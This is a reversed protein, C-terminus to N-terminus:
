SPSSLSSLSLLFTVVLRQALSACHSLCQRLSLPPPAVLSPTPL